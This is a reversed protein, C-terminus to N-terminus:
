DLCDDPGVLEWAEAKLQDAEDERGWYRLWQELNLMVRIAWPDDKGHITGIMDTVDRMNREALQAKGLYVQAHASLELGQSEASLSGGAKAREILDEGIVEADAEKGQLFMNWGLAYLIDLCSRSHAGLHAEVNALLKRLYREASSLDSHGYIQTIYDIRCELTDLHFPGLEHELTSGYCLWSQSLVSRLDESQFRGLLTLIQSWPHDKPLVQTAM